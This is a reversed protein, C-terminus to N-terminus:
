LRTPPTSPTTEIQARLAQIEEHLKENQALLVNQDHELEQLEEKTAQILTTQHHIIDKPGDILQRVEKTTVRGTPEGNGAFEPNTRATYTFEDGHRPQIRKRPVISPQFEALSVGADEIFRPQTHNDGWAPHHRNFDGALILSFTRSDDPPVNQITFRTTSQRYPLKRRHEM